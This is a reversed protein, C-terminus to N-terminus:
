CRDQKPSYGHRQFYLWAGMFTLQHKRAFEEVGMGSELDAIREARKAKTLGGGGCHTGSRVRDLMNDSRTGLLLHHPNCCAPNNCAHRVELGPPIEGVHVLYAARHATTTSPKGSCYEKVVGYGDRTRQRPWNWCGTVPDIVYDVAIREALTLRRRPDAM